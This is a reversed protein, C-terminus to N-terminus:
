VVRLWVGRTHIAVANALLLSQMEQPVARQALIGDPTHTGTQMFGLQSVVASDSHAVGSLSNYFRRSRLCCLARPPSFGSHIQPYMLIKLWRSRRAPVRLLNKCCGRVSIQGASTREPLGRMQSILKVFFHGLLTQIVFTRVELIREVFTLQV